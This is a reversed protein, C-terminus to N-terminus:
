TRVVRLKQRQGQICSVIVAGAIIVLLWSDAEPATGTAVRQEEGDGIDPTVVASSVPTVLRYQQALKTEPFPDASTQRNLENSILENAYLQSLCAYTEHNQTPESAQNPTCTFEAVQHDPMKWSRYLYLLDSSIDGSRTARVLATSPYIENLIEDPGASVKFDYILPYDLHEKLIKKLDENSAARVPQAGHIWLVSTDSSLAAKKAAALLALSDDQGGVFESRQLSFLARDVKTDSGETAGAFLTKTEDGILQLEVSQVSSLQKLGKVIESIYPAMLTSGDVIILLHKPLPHSERDIHREVITREQDFKNRCFVTGCHPDRAARAVTALTDLLSADVVGDVYFRSALAAPVISSKRQDRRAALSNISPILNQSSTLRLKVQEAQIFNKEIIAPLGIEASADDSLALPCAISLHVQITKGPGVPFCQVLAEDPGCWSVLLPNQRRSSVALVYAKRARNRVLIEAQREVGDVTLTAGTIVAGKPLLLKARAERDYRSSNHFELSWSLDALLADADVNGQLTSNTLSLGRAQGSVVEGAIDADLDFEDEVNANVGAIDKALGAHSITARAAVPLPVSNFPKGTVRYFIRRAHDIPLPHASEYLSGLIDTAKGSREYCARLMVEQNGYARLWQIGDKSQRNNDAMNLHIRTLTSPLEIAVVMVLIILHGIHKIQHPDIYTKDSALRCIISGSHITCPLALIPALGLLGFGLALSFLLSLGFIPLFMLSYMTAVGAAMGNTLTMMAYHESLNKRRALLILCNSAPILLFLLVHSNSPFPDFFHRACFHTTTEFLTAVLPLLVGGLVLIWNSVSNEALVVAAMTSLKALARPFHESM